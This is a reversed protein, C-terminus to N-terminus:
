KDVFQSTFFFEILEEAEFEDNGTVPFVEKPDLPLLMDVEVDVSVAGIDWVVELTLGGLSGGLNVGTLPTRCM